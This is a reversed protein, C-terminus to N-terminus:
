NTHMALKRAMDSSMSDTYIGYGNVLVGRLGNNSEIAYVIASDAPDSPGEFRHFEVIEFDDPNFKQNNCVICNEKLNFDMSYGRERLDTLAQSLTDYHEGM